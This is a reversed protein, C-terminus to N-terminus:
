PMGAVTRIRRPMSMSPPHPCSFPLSAAMFSSSSFSFSFSFSSAAATPSYFLLPPPYFVCLMDIFSFLGVTQVCRRLLALFIFAHFANCELDIHISTRRRKNNTEKKM